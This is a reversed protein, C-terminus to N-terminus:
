REASHLNLLVQQLPSEDRQWSSLDRPHKGLRQDPGQVRRGPFFHTQLQFPRCPLHLSHNNTWYSNICCCFTKIDIILWCTSIFWTNQPNTILYLHAETAVQQYFRSHYFGSYKIWAVLESMWENMRENLCLSSFLSPSKGLSDKGEEVTANIRRAVNAVAEAM